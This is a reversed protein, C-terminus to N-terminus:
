SCIEFLFSLIRWGERRAEVEVEPLDHVAMMMM